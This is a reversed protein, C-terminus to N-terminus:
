LKGDNKDLYYLRVYKTMTYFYHNVSFIFGLRGDLFGMNLFYVKFFAWVPRLVIDLFFHARKGESYNQKAMLRTYRDFKGFYSDWNDYTFHLLVGDNIKEKSYPTELKEHVLGIYESNDKPFLRVVWDPRLIGHTAKNFRFCNNRRVEYAKKEGKNIKELVSDALEQTVREDADVVLIWDGNCRNIGFNRQSSWDGNMSRVFVKAGCSRAKSVTEDTSHDDIVVVEDAFALTQICAEINNIENKACILASLM